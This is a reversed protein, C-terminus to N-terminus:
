SSSNSLPAPGYPVYVGSIMDGLMPVMLCEIPVANRRLKVLQLLQNAWGYLRRNFIDISYSNLGAMQEAEVRDGIHLDTLPAVCVQPTRKGKNTKASPIQVASIAPAMNQITDVILEKKTSDKISTEYLKKWFRSEAKYTEVKKDLKVRDETSFSEDNVEDLFVERDYWRQVTTRHVSIGYDDLLWQAIATWTEGLNKKRVIELRAEEPIM